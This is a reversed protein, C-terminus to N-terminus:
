KTQWRSIEEQFVSRFTDRAASSNNTPNALVCMFSVPVKLLNLNYYKSTKDLFNNEM